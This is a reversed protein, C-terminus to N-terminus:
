NKKIVKKIIEEKPHLYFNEVLILMIVVLWMSNLQTWLLNSSYTELGNAVLNMVFVFISIALLSNALYRILKGVLVKNERDM